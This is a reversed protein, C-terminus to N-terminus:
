SEWLTVGRFEGVRIKLGPRRFVGFHMDIKNGAGGSSSCARWIFDILAGGSSSFGGWIVDTLAVVMELSDRQSVVARM